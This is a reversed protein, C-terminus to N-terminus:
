YRAPESRHVGRESLYGGACLPYERVQAEVQEDTAYSQCCAGFGQVRQLGRSDGKDNGAGYKGKDRMGQTYKEALENKFQVRNKEETGECACSGDGGGEIRQFFFRVAAQRGQGIRYRVGEAIDEEGDPPGHQYIDHLALRYEISEIWIAQPAPPPQPDPWLLMNFFRSFVGLFVLIETKIL